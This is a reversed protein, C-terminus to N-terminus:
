RDWISNTLARIQAPQALSSETTHHGSSQAAVTTMTKRAPTPKVLKRDRVGNATGSVPRWCCGQAVQHGSDVAPDALSVGEHRM